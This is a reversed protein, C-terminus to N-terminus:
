ESRISCDPSGSRRIVVIEEAARIGSEVDLHQTPIVRLQAAGDHRSSALEAGLRRDRVQQLNGPGGVLAIKTHGQDLLHEVALRGGEVDDVSCRASTLLTAPVIWFYSPFAASGSSCSGSM